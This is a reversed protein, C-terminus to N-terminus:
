KTTKVGRRVKRWKAVNRNHGALTRAFVHGGSGDAVFYIEDTAMPKLVAALAARGPNCIPGPPLADIVYTNYPSPRRLDARALARGLGGGGTLGYAVTPDSQLRMGRRLRNIFVGAIRPREAAIGTEKEVISALIVAERSSALPLDPDRAAWLRDVIAAMDDTMRHLISARTDRYSFHYTEPLLTGEGPVMVNGTLGDTGLLQHIAQASTLGEALTMRRVITKGLTLVTAVGRPSVGPQFAFEGAKLKTHVGSLRGGWRFVQTGDIVGEAALVEAIADLGAGRPIVVAIPARLPGAGGYQKVGWVYIGATGAVALLLIGLFGLVWRGWRVTM